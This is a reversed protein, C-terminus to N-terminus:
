HWRQEKNVVLNQNVVWNPKHCVCTTPISESIQKRSCSICEWVKKEKIMMRGLPKKNTIM